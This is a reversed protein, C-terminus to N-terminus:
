GKSLLLRHFSGDVQAGIGSKPRFVRRVDVSHLDSQVGRCSFVMGGGVESQAFEFGVSGAKFHVALGYEQAARQFAADEGQGAIGRHLFIIPRLDVAGALFVAQIM